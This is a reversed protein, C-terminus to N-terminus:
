YKYRRCVYGHGSGGWYIKVTGDDEPVAGCTFVVNNVYGVVERLDESEWVKPHVASDEEYGKQCVAHLKGKTESDATAFPTVEFGRAVLGETLLSVISEWPGYHRPPTRWAIPSLMAIRM